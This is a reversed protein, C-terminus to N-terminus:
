PHKQYNLHATIEKYDHSQFCHPERLSQKDYPYIDPVTFVIAENLLEVTEKATGGQIENLQAETRKVFQKHVNGGSDVLNNFTCLLEYVATFEKKDL